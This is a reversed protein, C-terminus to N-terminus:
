NEVLSYVTKIKIILAVFACRALAAAPNPLRHWTPPPAISSASYSANTAAGVIDFPSLRAAIRSATFENFKQTGCSEAM